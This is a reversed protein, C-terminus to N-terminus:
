IKYDAVYGPKSYKLKHRQKNLAHCYDFITYIYLDHLNKQGNAPLPKFKFPEWKFSIQVSSIKRLYVFHM